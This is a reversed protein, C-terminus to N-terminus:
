NLNTIKHSNIGDNVFKPSQLDPLETKLISFTQKIFFTITIRPMFMTAQLLSLSLDIM